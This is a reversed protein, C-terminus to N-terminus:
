FKIKSSLKRSNQGNKIFSILKTFFSILFVSMYIYKGSYSLHSWSLIYFQGSALFIMFNAVYHDPVTVRYFGIIQNYTQMFTNFHGRKSNLPGLIPYRFQAM